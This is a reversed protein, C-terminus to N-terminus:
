GIKIPKNSVPPLWYSHIVEHSSNWTDWIQGDIIAAIHRTGLNVIARSFYNDILYDEAIIKKNFVDRPEKCKVWGHSKLYSKINKKDNFMYGKSIAHDTMDRVAEEWTIGMAVSIARAVCDGTFNNKPNANHYKFVETEPFRNIRQQITKSRAM